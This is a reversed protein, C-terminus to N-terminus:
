PDAPPDANTHLELLNRPTLVPLYPLDLGTLDTDGSALADANADRALAILYDDSRDPSIEPLDPPDDWLEGRRAVESVYAEAEELSLYRRFKQRRLVGDLEALLGPSVIPVIIAADILDTVARTTGATIAASVLVNPDIVIRRPPAM